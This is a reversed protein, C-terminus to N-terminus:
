RTVNKEDNHRPLNAEANNGWVLAHTTLVVKYVVPDEILKALRSSWRVPYSGDFALIEEVIIAMTDGPLWDNPESDTM